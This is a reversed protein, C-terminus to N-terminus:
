KRITTRRANDNPYQMRLLTRKLQMLEEELERNRAKLEENQTKLDELESVLKVREMASQSPPAQHVPAHGAARADDEDSVVVCQSILAPYEFGDEDAVMCRNGNISTVTGGGTADLFRVKDGIKM